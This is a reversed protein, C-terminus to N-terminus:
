SEEKGMKSGILIAGRNLGPARRPREAQSKGSGWAVLAQTRNKQQDSKLLEGLHVQSPISIPTPHIKGKKVEALHNEDGGSKGGLCPTVVKKRSLSAKLFTHIPKIIEKERKKLWKSDIEEQIYKKLKMM